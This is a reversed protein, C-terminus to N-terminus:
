EKIVPQELRLGKRIELHGYQGSSGYLAQPIIGAEFKYDQVDKM